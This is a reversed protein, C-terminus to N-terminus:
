AANRPDTSGLGSSPLWPLQDRTDQFTPKHWDRTFANGVWLVVTLWNVVVALHKLWWQIAFALETRLIIYLKIVHLYFKARPNIWKCFTIGQYWYKNSAIHMATVLYTEFAALHGFVRCHYAFSSFTVKDGFRLICCCSSLMWTANMFHAYSIWIPNAYGYSKCLWIMQTTMANAYGHYKCLANAHLMQMSIQMSCKCLIKISANAYSGWLMWLMQMVNAYCGCLMQMVNADCKCLMLKGKAYWKCRM